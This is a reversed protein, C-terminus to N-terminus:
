RKWGMKVMTALNRSGAKAKSGLPRSWVAQVSRIPVQPLRSMAQPISLVWREHNSARFCNSLYSSLPGRCSVFSM